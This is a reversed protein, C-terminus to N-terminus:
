SHTFTLGSPLPKVSPQIFKYGSGWVTKIFQPKKPDDKLKARIRSILVDASRDVSAWDTGHLASIIQERSFVRKNGLVLLKLVMYEATSFHLDVDDLFVSQQDQDILLGGMKHKKTHQNQGRRLISNIRAVLERPEFPKALYDDAGIELGVIRDAVDGKATLMVIPVHSISRIEKVIEFGSMKPLMVDCIILDYDIKKIKLLAIPGSTVPDVDMQYQSLYESLLSLLKEDDDIVLLKHM